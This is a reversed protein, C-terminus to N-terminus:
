EPLSGFVEDHSLTNKERYNRDSEELLDNLTIKKLVIRDGDVAVALADGTNLGLADRVQKPLVIQGKSSLKTAAIIAM